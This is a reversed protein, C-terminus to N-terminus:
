GVTAPASTSSDSTYAESDMGVGALGGGRAARATSGAQRSRTPVGAGPWLGILAGLAVILGGYWIWPVLPNVLVQFTARQFQPENSGLLVADDVTALIVYLDEVFTSRIGVESIPQPPNVALVLQRQTTISGIDVGDKEVTFLAIVQRMSPVLTTSLGQYTLSYEHGFPSEISITEGPIMSQRVERDYAAGAFGMFM